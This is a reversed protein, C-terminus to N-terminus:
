RRIEDGRSSLGASAAVAPADLENMAIEYRDSFRQSRGIHNREVSHDAAVM